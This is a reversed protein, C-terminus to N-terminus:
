SDESVPTWRPGDAAVLMAAGLLLAVLALAIAASPGLRTAEIALACLAAQGVALTGSIARPSKLVTRLRHTTHDTAGSFVPAGRRRRSLVVLATDFVPLGVAVAAIVLSSFGSLNGMPAAMLGGALLLGIAMSGGDGLFIRAPRALNYPLFGALAGAFGFAIVALAPDDGIVAIVGLCLASVGAVSAAAGDLNDMLNFANVIATVWFATLLLDAAGNGLFSWGLGKEWLFWAALVEAAVRALPHLNVRDDITGVLCLGAAAALLSWYRNSGTELLAVAVLAAVLVAGGGLYPTPQGHSKYGTPADLFGTRRATWIAAPATIATLGAALAFAILLRVGETV